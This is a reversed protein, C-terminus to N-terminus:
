IIYEINKVAACNRLLYEYEAEFLENCRVPQHLIKTGLPCSIGMCEPYHKCDHCNETIRDRGIWKIMKGENIIMRGDSAIYGINNIDEFKENELIMACKYVKGNHNIVYGNIKSASCLSLSLGNKEFGTNISFGKQSLVDMWRREDDHDFLLDKNNQIKEGGWDRVFEFAITFHPDNGFNEYLWDIFEEIYVCVKSSINIRIAIKYSTNRIKEKIETLNKVIREFSDKKVKHPRQKNHIEKPGDITIQFRRVHNAVLNQFTKLDLEYGNTTMTAFFPRKAKLCIERLKEMFKAILEKALLPEGGFWSILVGSYERIHKEIFNLISNVTDENMYFYPEKQYCYICDFNCANTPIITLDLMSDNYMRKNFRYDVIQAEDTTEDILFGNQYLKQVIEATEDGCRKGSFIKEVLSIDCERVKFIKQTLSNKIIMEGDDTITKLIYSSTKYSM